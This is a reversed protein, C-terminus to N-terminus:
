ENKNEELINFNSMVQAMRPFDVMGSVNTLGMKVFFCLFIVSKQM